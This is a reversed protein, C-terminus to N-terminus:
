LQMRASFLKRVFLEVGVHSGIRIGMGAGLFAIWAMLFRALEESWPFPSKAVYRMYVQAIIVVSMIGMMGIIVIKAINATIDSIKKAILVLQTM